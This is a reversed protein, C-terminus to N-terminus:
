KKLNNLDFNIMEDILYDLNKKPKWNLLRKAKSSNGLLNTVDLPRFYNKSVRIIAKKNEDVGIENLGKRKFTIKIDLKKAVKKVFDRVSTQLGTSIVFDDPKSYQLIKWQAEVYDEAHGWDRKSDLNGLYLTKELGLKIKILGLVIKRTVFFEGRRPSEHNFLIGNSAFINYGNRYNLV